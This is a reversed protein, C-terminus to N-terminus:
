DRPSPSTYLLCDVHECYSELNSILKTNRVLEQQLQKQLMDVRGHLRQATHALNSVEQWTLSGTGMSSRARTSAYGEKFAQGLLNYPLPPVATDAPPGRSYVDLVPTCALVWAVGALLQHPDRHEFHSAAPYSLRGLQEKAM